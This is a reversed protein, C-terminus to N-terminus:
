WRCSVMVMMMMVITLSVFKVPANVCFLSLLASCIYVLLMYYLTDM